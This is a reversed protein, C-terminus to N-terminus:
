NTCVYMHVSTRVKLPSRSLLVSWIVLSRLVHTSFSIQRFAVFKSMVECKSLGPIQNRKGISFNLKTKHCLKSWEITPPNLRALEIM